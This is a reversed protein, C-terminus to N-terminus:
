TMPTQKFTIGERKLADPGIRSAEGYVILPGDFDGAAERIIGLTTRTLVNGGAVSKDGLIGNYLLAIGTGDHAGLFPTTADGTMPSGTEASWIHAALPAFKIGPAITGDAAFVQGGLRYFAFGGGGKWNEVKSIGDKDGGVVRKLRPVCHTIAQKGMEIGLYRRGMKHATAATTGSGLFSDLVLDGPQTSIQLCRRLLAEPKKGKPFKVGGEKHVNNSLLDDWGNSVREATTIAGDIERAKNRYFIVQKGGYFYYDDRGDREQREVVGSNRSLILKERAEANVDKEAVSALQVVRNRNKLVFREIFPEPDGDYSTRWAKLPMGVERELAASLPEFAWERFPDDFNSIYTSYRADRPIPRYVNRPKWEAKNKSYALLFNNTTVVGPNRSKPGSVSSQKFSILSVRNKRGMIEDLIVTAYAIEEDDLHVFLTGDDTLFESLLEFRPFMVGMWISHELNDDYHEFAEGTNFPPDIYICKVQGRYYPLLAKLAELNDGQILMNGSDPDGHSLADDRELLRYPIGDAAKVDQERTLWSLIPM